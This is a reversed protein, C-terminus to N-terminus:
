KAIRDITELKRDGQVSLAATPVSVDHNAATGASPRPQDALAALVGFPDHNFRIVSGTCCFYNLLSVPTCDSVTQRSSQLRRTNRCQACQHRATDTDANLATSEDVAELESDRNCTGSEDGPALEIRQTTTDSPTCKRTM